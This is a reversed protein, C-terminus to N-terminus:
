GAQEVPGGDATVCNRGSAKSVRLRQRALILLVDPDATDEPVSAVGVSCSVTVESAGENEPRTEAVGARIREALRRAEERGTEDCLVAFAEEDYRVVFDGARCTTRIIEGVQRLLRDARAHGLATNVRNFHDMDIVLLSWERGPRSALRATVLEFQQYNPLGTVADTLQLTRLHDHLQANELAASLMPALAELLFLHYRGISQGGKRAIWFMGQAQDHNFLTGAAMSDYGAHRFPGAWDGCAGLDTWYSTGRNRMVEPILSSSVADAIERGRDLLLRSEGTHIIQRARGKRTRRSLAIGLAEVDMVKHLQQAARFLLDDEGRIRFMQRGMEQLARLQAAQHDLLRRSRMQASVDQVVWLQAMVQRLEDHVPIIQFLYAGDRADFQEQGQRTPDAIVQRMRRAFGDADNLELPAWFDAPEHVRGAIQDVECNVLRCLQANASIMRGEPDVLLIADSMNNIVLDLLQRKQSVERILRRSETVDVFALRVESLTGEEDFLGALEVSVNRTEEGINMQLECQGSKDLALRDVSQRFRARDEQRIYDLIAAGLLASENGAGFMRVARDNLDSIRGHADISAMAAPAFHYLGRFARERRSLEKTADELRRLMRALCDALEGFEGSAEAAVDEFASPPASQQVLNMVRKLPTAVYRRLLTLGVLTLVALILWQAGIRAVLDTKMRARIGPGDVVMEVSHTENADHLPVVVRTRRSLDIQRPGAPDAGLNWVRLGGPSQPWAGVTIPRRDTSIFRVAIVDPDQAFIRLAATTLEARQPGTVIPRLVNQLNRAMILVHQSSTVRALQRSWRYEMVGLGLSLVVGGLCFFFVLRTAVSNIWSWRRM